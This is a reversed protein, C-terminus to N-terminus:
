RKTVIVDVRDPPGGELKKGRAHVEFQVSRVGKDILYSRVALARSLSLRRSQSATQGAAGAYALLKLRIATDTKAGAAIEDLRETSVAGLKSTEPAFGLRYSRGVGFAQRAPTIAATQTPPPKASRPVAPSRAISPPAPARTAPPPPPPATATLPKPRSRIKPTPPLVSASKRAPVAPELPVSAIPPRPIAPRAALKRPRKVSAAKRRAPAPRPVLKRPKQTRSRLNPKARAIARRAPRSRKPLREAKARGPPRLVVPRSTTVARGAPLRRTVASGMPLQPRPTTPLLLSPVSQAPGLSNLVGYDITVSPNRPTTTRRQAQSPMAVAAVLCAVVFIAAPSRVRCATSVRDHRHAM